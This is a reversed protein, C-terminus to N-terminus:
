FSNGHGEGRQRVPLLQGVPLLRRGVQRGRDTLDLRRQAGADGGGPTRHLLDERDDLPADRPSLTPGTM